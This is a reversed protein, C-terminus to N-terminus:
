LGFIREVIKAGLAIVSGYFILNCLVTSGFILVVAIIPKACDKM